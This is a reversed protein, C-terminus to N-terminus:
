HGFDAERPSYPRDRLPSRDAFMQCRLGTWVWGRQGTYGSRRLEPITLTGLFATARNTPRREGTAANVIEAVLKAPLFVVENETDHGRLRLDAAFAERLVAAEESDSDVTEQRSEILDQCEEPHDVCALVAREWQGWRTLRSLPKKPNKLATIIDCIIQWWHAEIYRSLDEEWTPQNVSRQLQVPVCRAALDRSLNAGNITLSWVLTNPRSGEGLYLQKGSITDTTILQELDSSSFKLSKVNDILVIRKNRGEPSLLRTIFQPMPDSITYSIYGNVLKAMLRVLTTKGIGRGAGEDGEVGEILFAPRQAPALGVFHTLIYALLLERDLATGPCFQSLIHLLHKGDGPQVEPHHYFHRPLPPEHPLSEVADYADATQQLYAFFQKQSVLNPGNIWNVAHEDLTPALRGLEGAIWSFLAHVDELYIIQNNSVGFLLSHVRKPWGSTLTQLCKAIKDIPISKIDKDLQQHNALMGPQIDATQKRAAPPTETFPTAAELISTFSERFKEKDACHLDSPDKYQGCHVVKIDNNYGVSKLQKQADQVFKSGANGPEKHIYVTNFGDFIDKTLVKVMQSGPVGLAPFGHYWLTVADTEGEVLIIVGHPRFEKLKWLGYAYTGKHKMDWTTGDSARLTHRYRCRALKHEADHYPIQIGGHPLDQWGLSKFFSIPLRKHYSLEELTIKDSTLQGNSKVDTQYIDHWTLGLAQLVAEKSCGGFCRLLPAKEGDKVGLSQRTDGHAPCCANYWGDDGSSKVGSLKSLILEFAKSM